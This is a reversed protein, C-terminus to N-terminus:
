IDGEESSNSHKEAGFFVSKNGHKNDEIKFQRFDIEKHKDMFKQITKGVNEEKVNLTIVNWDFVPVMEAQKPANCKINPIIFGEFRNDFTVGAFEFGLLEFKSDHGNYFEKETKEKFCEEFHEMIKEEDMPLKKNCHTCILNGEVSKDKPSYYFDVSFFDCKKEVDKPKEIM